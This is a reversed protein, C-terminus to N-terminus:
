LDLFGELAHGSDHVLLVRAVRQVFVHRTIKFRGHRVFGRRIQHELPQHLGTPIRLRQQM